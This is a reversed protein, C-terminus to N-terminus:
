LDLCYRQKMEKAFAVWPLFPKNETRLKLTSDKMAPVGSIALWVWLFLVCSIFACMGEGCEPDGQRPFLAIWYHTPRDEVETLTTLIIGWLYWWLSAQDLCNWFSDEWTIRLQTTLQYNFNVVLLLPEWNFGSTALKVLLGPIAPPNNYRHLM